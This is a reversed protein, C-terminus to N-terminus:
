GLGICEFCVLAAKQWVAQAQGQGAGIAICVVALVLVALAIKVPRSLRPKM